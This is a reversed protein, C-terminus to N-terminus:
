KKEGTNTLDDGDHRIGDKEAGLRVLADSLTECMEDERNRNRRRAEDAVRFAAWIINEEALEITARNLGDPQKTTTTIVLGPNACLGTLCARVYKDHLTDEGVAEAILGVSTNRERLLKNLEDNQSRFLM